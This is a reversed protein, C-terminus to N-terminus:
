KLRREYEQKRVWIEKPGDLQSLFDEDLEVPVDYRQDILEGRVFPLVVWKGSVYRAIEAMDERTLGPHWVTTVEWYGSWSSLIKMTEQVKDFVDDGVLELYKNPTTKVDLRIMDVAKRKILKEIMQPNTGNTEIMTKLGLLKLKKAFIPLDNWITPEGGTICVGSMVRNRQIESYAEKSSMGEKTNVIEPVFCYGCRLNCGSTWVRSFIIGQWNFAQLELKYINM